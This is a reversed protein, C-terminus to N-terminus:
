FFSKYPIVEWWTIYRSNYFICAGIQIVYFLIKERKGADKLLNPVMTIAPLLFYMAFRKYIPLWVCFLSIFVGIYVSNIAIREYTSEGSDEKKHRNEYLLIVFLTVLFCILYPVDVEFEKTLFNSTLYSPKFTKFLWYMIESYNLNFPLTCIALVAFFSIKLKRNLVFYMPLMIVASFHFLSAIGVFVAYKLFKRKEIYSYAYWVLMMAIFQRILTLGLMYFFGYFFYLLYSEVYAKTYKRICLILLGYGILSVVFYVTQFPFGCEKIVKCIQEFAWDMHWGSTPGLREFYKFYEEYDTGVYGMCANVLYMPLFTLLMYVYEKIKKIRIIQLGNNAATQREWLFAFVLTVALM